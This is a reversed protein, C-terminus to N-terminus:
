SKGELKARTTPIGYVSHGRGVDRDGPSGTQGQVQIETVASALFGEAVKEYLIKLSM